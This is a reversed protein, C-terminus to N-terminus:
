SRSAWLVKVELDRGHQACVCSLARTGAPGRKQQEM